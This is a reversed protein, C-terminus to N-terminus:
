RFQGIDNWYKLANRHSIYKSMASQHLCTDGHSTSASM